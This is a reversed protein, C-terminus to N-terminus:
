ALFTFFFPVPVVNLAICTAIVFPIVVLFFFFFFFFFQLKRWRLLFSFFIFFAEFCMVYFRGKRSAKKFSKALPMIREMYYALSAGSVYRKLIPVLWINSYTYSHEDLSVPVLSLFREIGMAYVASGICKQLQMFIFLLHILM